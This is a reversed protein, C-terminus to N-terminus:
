ANLRRELEHMIAKARSQARRSTEIGSSNMVASLARLLERESGGALWVNFSASNLGLPHEPTLEAM